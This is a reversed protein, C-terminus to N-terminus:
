GHQQPFVLGFFISCIEGYWYLNKSRERARYLSVPAPLQSFYNRFSFPPTDSVPAVLPFQYSWSAIYSIYAARKKWKIHKYIRNNGNKGDLKKCSCSLLFTGTATLRFLLCLSLFQLQSKMTPQLSSDAIRGGVGWKEGALKFIFKDADCV